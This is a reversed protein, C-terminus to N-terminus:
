LKLNLWDDPLGIIEKITSGDIKKIKGDEVVITSLKLASFNLEKSAYPHKVLWHKAIDLNAPNVHTIFIGSVRTNKPGNSDLFVGDLARTSRKNRNNPNTSFTVQLSGFLVNMIDDEDTGKESTSNICILFPKDIEGYRTAKKKISSKISSTSGGWYTSIPYIGIPRLEKKGRAEISKPILTIILKLDDDEYEIRHLNDFKNEKLEDNLEDPDYKTLEKELFKVVDKGSPQKNSKLSLENVDFFFNPSNTKNLIDYFQGIKNEFSTDAKSKDTSEKAELYFELGNGKVM